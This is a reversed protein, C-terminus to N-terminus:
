RRKLWQRVATWTDPDVSSFHWFGIGSLDMEDAIDLLARTSDADSSFFLHWNGKGDPYTYLNIKEYWLWRRQLPTGSAIDPKSRYIQAGAGKRSENVVYDNSYAPLGMIIKRRPVESSWYKVVTMAFPYSSTPGMGQCDQRSKLSEDDRGPAYYMDYVMLRILDCTEGAVKHDIFERCHPNQYLWPYYGVCHSLKKGAKHLADSTVRLFKSYSERFGADLHEFDLDIGDYGKEECAKLYGDVTAQLHIPTDFSSANGGVAMYVEIGLKHCRQIFEAPPSGFVSLSTLIDAKESIRDFNMEKDYVIWTAVQKRSRAAQSVTDSPSQAQVSAVIFCILLGSWIGRLVTMTIRM